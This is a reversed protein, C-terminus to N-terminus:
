SVSYSYIGIILCQMPFFTANRLVTLVLVIFYTGQEYAMMLRAHIDPQENFSSKGFVHWHIQRRFYLITHTITAAISAFSLGYSISFAASITQDSIAYLFFAFLLTKRYIFRAIPTINIQM